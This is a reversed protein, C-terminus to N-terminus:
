GRIVRIPVSLSCPQAQALWAAISEFDGKVLSSARSELVWRENQEAFYFILVSLQEQGALRPHTKFFCGCARKCTDKILCIWCERLSDVRHKIIKWDTVIKGM